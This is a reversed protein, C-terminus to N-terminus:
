KRGTKGAKIGLRPLYLVQFVGFIILTVIFAPIRLLWILGGFGSLNVGMMGRLRRFYLPLIYTNTSVSWLLDQQIFMVSFLLCFLTIPISPLIYIKFFNTSSGDRDVKQHQGRFFLTLVFLIPINLLYPLAFGIIRNFVELDLLLGIMGTLSLLVRAFLWPTFLILLWESAKGLPRLAGIGLAALYTVPFQMFLVILLPMYWTNLLSRWFAAGTTVESLQTFFGEGPARFIPIIQLIYPFVSLLLIILVIVALIISIVKLWKPLPAPQSEKPIQFLRVNSLIVLIGTALGLVSVVIFIPAAIASALGIQRFSFAQNLILNNLTMTTYEPGGNTLLTVTDGSQLSLAVTGIILIVALIFLNKWLKKKDEGTNAGKITALYVTLGLGCALGFFSLSDLLLVIWRALDPNALSFTQNGFGVWPNILLIWAVGLATPSYVMWPISSIVRMVKRFGPKLASIGLALFLPPILVIGVRSLTMLLTFSLAQGMVPSELMREYNAWGVPVSEGTLSVDQFSYGITRVTPIITFLILAALAPLIFLVSLLIQVARNKKVPQNQSTVNSNEHGEANM